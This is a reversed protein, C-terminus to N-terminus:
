LTSARAVSILYVLHSFMSRKVSEIKVDGTAQNITTVLDANCTGGFFGSGSYNAIGLSPYSIRPYDPPVQGAATAGGVYGKNDIFKPNWTGLFQGNGVNIGQVIVIETSVTNTFNSCSSYHNVKVACSSSNDSPTFCKGEYITARQETASTSTNLIAKPSFLEEASMLGLVGQANTVVIKNEPDSLGRVRISGNVDLTETPATTNIGVNGNEDIRAAEQNANIRFALATSATTGDGRYIGAIGAGGYGFAGNIKPNFLMAGILNDQALNAGANSRRLVLGQVQSVPSEDDFVYDNGAEIGATHNYLHLRGVPATTGLGVNGTSRVTFDNSQEVTNPVGTEPNDKAGDIHLVGQPNPTNIGVQSYALSSVALLCLTILNKKM